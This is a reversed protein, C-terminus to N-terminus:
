CPMGASSTCAIRREARLGGCAPTLSGRCAGEKAYGRHPRAALTLPAPILDTWGPHGLAM